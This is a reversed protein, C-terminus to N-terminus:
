EPKPADKPKLAEVLVEASKRIIDHQEATLPALRAANYINNLATETSMNM